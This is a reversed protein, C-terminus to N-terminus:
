AHSTTRIGVWYRRDEITIYTIYSISISFLTVVLFNISQLHIHVALNSLLSIVMTHSLYIGYSLVGIIQVKNNMFLKKIIFNENYGFSLILCTLISIVYFELRQIQVMYSASIVYVILATFVVGVIVDRYMYINPIEKRLNFTLIGLSFSFFYPIPSWHFFSAMNIGPAILLASFISKVLGITPISLLVLGIAKKTTNCLLILPPVFVYWFMEIPLSWEVGVWGSSQIDYNFSGLFSYRYFLEILTVDYLKGSFYLAVGGITIWFYYLPAIRIFRKLLYNKYSSSRLFSEAVCFGSIVFFIYVGTRGLDTLYNGIPGLSRLGAGGSHILVTIM